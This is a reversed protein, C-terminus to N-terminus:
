ANIHYFYVEELGAVVETFGEGPHNEAYIYVLPTGESLRSTLVHFNRGFEELASRDM